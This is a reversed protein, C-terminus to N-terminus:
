ASYSQSEKGACFLLVPRIFSFKLSLFSLSTTVEFKLNHQTSVAQNKLNDVLLSLTLIQLKELSEPRPKRFIKSPKFSIVDYVLKGRLNTAM